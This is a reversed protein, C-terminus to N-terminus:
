DGFEMIVNQIKQLRIYENKELKPRFYGFMYAADMFELGPYCVIDQVAVPNDMVIQWEGDRDAKPITQFVRIKLRTTEALEDWLSQWSPSFKKPEPFLKRAKEILQQVEPGDEDVFNKVKEHFGEQLQYFASYGGENITQQLEALQEESVAKELTEFVNSYMTSKM